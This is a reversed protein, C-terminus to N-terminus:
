YRTIGNFANYLPWTILTIYFLMRLLLLLVRKLNFENVYPSIGREESDKKAYDSFEGILRKYSVYLVVLGFVAGCLRLAYNNGFIQVLSYQLVFLVTFLINIFKDNTFYQTKQM